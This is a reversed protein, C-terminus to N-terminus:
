IHILSLLLGANDAIETNPQAGIGAIMFDALLEENKNTLIRISNNKTKLFKKINTNEKIFVGNLLHIKKIHNAVIKASTRKLIREQSELITVDVGFNRAVSAVELGIFGGGLIILKRKYRFEKTILSIDGIERIYYLKPIGNSLNKPLLRSRSGLGLFLTKYNLVKESDRICM